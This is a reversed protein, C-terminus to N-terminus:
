GVSVVRVERSSGDFGKKRKSGFRVVGAKMSYLSDDGAKKVNKGPIFRSGRQKVIIDGVKATQGDTIKIGLYKPNSDRGM